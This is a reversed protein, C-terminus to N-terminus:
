EWLDCHLKENKVVDYVEYASWLSLLDDKDAELAKALIPVQARKAKREGREINSLMPTDFDLRSATRRVAM